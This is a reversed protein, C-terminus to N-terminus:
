FVTMNALTDHVLAVSVKVFLNDSNYNVGGHVIGTVEEYSGLGRRERFFVASLM